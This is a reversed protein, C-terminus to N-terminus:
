GLVQVKVAAETLCLPHRQWRDALTQAMTDIDVCCTDAGYYRHRCLMSLDSYGLCPM